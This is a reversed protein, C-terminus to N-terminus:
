LNSSGTDFVVTFVQEPYGLSIEGYFQADFANKLPLDHGTHDNRFRYFRNGTDISDLVEQWVLNQDEFPFKKLSIKQLHQKQSKWSNGVRYQIPKAFLSSFSSFWLLYVFANSLSM